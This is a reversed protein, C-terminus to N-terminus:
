GVCHRSAECCKYMVDHSVLQEDSLDRLNKFLNSYTRKAFLICLYDHCLILLCLLGHTLLSHFTLQRKFFRKMFLIGFFSSSSVSEKVYNSLYIKSYGKIYFYKYRISNM